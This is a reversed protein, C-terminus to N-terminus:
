STHRVRTHGQKGPSWCRSTCSTNAQRSRPHSPTAQQGHALFTHPAPPRFLHTLPRRDHLRYCCQICWLMDSYGCHTRCPRLRRTRLCKCSQRFLIHSCVIHEKVPVERHFTHLLSARCRCSRPCQPAFSSLMCVLAVIIHVSTIIFHWTCPIIAAGSFILEQLIQLLHRNTVWSGTSIFQLAPM